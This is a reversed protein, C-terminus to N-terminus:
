ALGREQIQVKMDTLQWIHSHNVQIRHRQDARCSHRSHKKRDESLSKIFDKMGWSAVQHQRCMINLVQFWLLMM